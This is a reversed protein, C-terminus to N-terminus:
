AGPFVVGLACGGLRSLGAVWEIRVALRPVPVAEGWPPFGLETLCPDPQCCWTQARPLEQTWRPQM